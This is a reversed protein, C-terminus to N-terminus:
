VVQLSWLKLATSQLKKRALGLTERRHQITKTSCYFIVHTSVGCCSTICVKSQITWFGARLAIKTDTIGMFYYEKLNECVQLAEDDAQFFDTFSPSGIHSNHISDVSYNISSRGNQLWSKFCTRWVGGTNKLNTVHYSITVCGQPGSGFM